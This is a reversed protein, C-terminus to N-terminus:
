HRLIPVHSLPTALASDLPWQGVEVPAARPLLRPTARTAPLVVGRIVRLGALPSERLRLGSADGERLPVDRELLALRAGVAATNEVVSGHVPVM